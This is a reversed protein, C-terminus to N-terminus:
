PSSNLDISLIMAGGHTQNHPTSFIVRLFSFFFFQNSNTTLENTKTTIIEVRHIENMIRKGKISAARNQM